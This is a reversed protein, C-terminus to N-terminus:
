CGEILIQEFSGDVFCVCFRKENIRVLTKIPFEFFEHSFTDGSFPDILCVGSTPLYNIGCSKVVALMFKTGTISFAPMDSVAIWQDPEYLKLEGSRCDFFGFVGRWGCILVVKGVWPFPVPRSFGSHIPGGDAYFSQSEIWINTRYNWVGVQNQNNSPFTIFDGSIGYNEGALEFKGTNTAHIVKRGRLCIHLLMNPYAWAIVEDDSGDAFCLIDWERESLNEFSWKEGNEGHWSPVECAVKWDIHGSQELLCTTSVWAFSTKDFQKLVFGPLTAWYGDPGVCDVGLWEEGEEYQNNEHAAILEKKGFTRASGDVLDVTKFYGFSNSSASGDSITLQESSPFVPIFDAESELLLKQKAQIAEPTASRRLDIVSFAETSTNVLLLNGDPSFAIPSSSNASYEEDCGARCVIHAIQRGEQVDFVQLDGSEEILALMRGDASFTAQAQFSVGPIRRWLESSSVDRIEGRLYFFRGNASIV